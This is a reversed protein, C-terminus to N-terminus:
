TSRSPLLPFPVSVSSMVLISVQCTSSPYLLFAIVSFVSMCLYMCMCVQVVRNEADQLRIMQEELEQQLVAKEKMLEIDAKDIRSRPSRNKLPTAAACNGKLPTAAVSGARSLPPRDEINNRIYTELCLIDQKLEQIKNADERVPYLERLRKLEKDVAYFANVKESMDTCSDLKAREDQIQKCLVHLEAIESKLSASLQQSKSSGSSASAHIEALASMKFKLQLKLSHITKLQEAAKAQMEKARAHLVAKEKEAERHHRIVQQLLAITDESTDSTGPVM